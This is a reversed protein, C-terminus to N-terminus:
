FINNYENILGQAMTNASQFGLNMHEVSKMIGGSFAQGGTFITALMPIVQNTMEEVFKNAGDGKWMGGTVQTVMNKLPASIQDTIFSFQSLISKAIGEIQDQVFSFIGM